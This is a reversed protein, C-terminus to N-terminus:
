IAMKGLMSVMSTVIFFVLFRMKLVRNTIANTKVSNGKSGATKVAVAVSVTSFV